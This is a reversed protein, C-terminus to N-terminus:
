PKPAQITIRVRESGKAAAGAKVVAKVRDYVIRDSAFSDKGQSLRAKGSLILEESDVRYEMKNAQGVMDPKDDGSRQKFRAPGGSAVVKSPKGGKHEVTVKDATVEISGQRLVVNGQYVSVGESEKIDVSDAEIEIAQNKDGSLALVGGSILLLSIFLWTQLSKVPYM